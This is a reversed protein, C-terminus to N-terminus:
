NDPQIYLCDVGWNVGAGIALFFIPLLPILDYVRPLSEWQRM